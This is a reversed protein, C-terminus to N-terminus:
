NKSCPIMTGGFFCVKKADKAAPPPPSPQTSTTAPALTPTPTEPIGGKVKRAEREAASGYLENFGAILIEFARKASLENGLAYRKTQDVSKGTSRAIVEWAPVGLDALGSFAIYPHQKDDTLRGVLLAIHTFKADDAGIGAAANACARLITIADEPKWGWALLQRSVTVMTLQSYSTTAALQHIDSLHAKAASVGKLLSSFSRIVKEDNIGDDQAKVTITPCLTFTFLLVAYLAATSKM